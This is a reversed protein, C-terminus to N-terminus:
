LVCVMLADLVIQDLLVESTPKRLKPQPASANEVKIRVCTSAEVLATM